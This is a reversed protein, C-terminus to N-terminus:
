NLDDVIQYIKFGNDDYDGTWEVGYFFSPSYPGSEGNWRHAVLAMWSTLQKDSSRGRSNTTLYRHLNLKPQWERALDAFHIRDGKSRASLIGVFNSRFQTSGSLFHSSGNCCGNGDSLHIFETDGAGFKVNLGKCLEKARKLFGAKAAAVLTYDRGLRKIGRKSMTAWVDVGTAAHIRELTKQKEETGIKLFEFSLHKVGALAVKEALALASDEHGPIVPQIRFSVNIGARTLITIANLIAKLPPCGIELRARCKDDVGAASIRVLVNMSQLMSIYPEMSILISKTSILTPYDYDRLIELLNYTTRQKIELPSFPDQLGGLQIPVRAHLFEDFASRITGAAIRQLRARFAIPNAAKLGPASRDLSRNRSFCYTCGFQCGSYSDLRIPSSCFYVQSSVTAFHKYTKM